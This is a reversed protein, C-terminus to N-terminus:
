LVGQFIQASGEDYMLQIFCPPRGVALKLLM